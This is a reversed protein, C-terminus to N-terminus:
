QTVRLRMFRRSQAQLTTIDHVIVSKVGPSNDDGDVTAPGSFANGGTSTAITQWPGAPDDAAQAEITLDTNAPDRNLTLALTQNGAAGIILPAEMASSALPDLGLAYETLNPISDGDPDGLDPATSSGLHQLKWLGFPAPTTFSKISGTSTGDANTVVARFYYTTRPALGTLITNTTVMGSPAIEDGPQVSGLAPTTGYEWTVNTTEGGTIVRAFLKMETTSLALSGLTGAHPGLHSIRFVSGGNFAGGSGATGYLDGEPGFCLAGTSFDGPAAGESGTFHFLMVPAGAPQMRFVGGFGNPGGTSLTGYLTGDPAVLLPGLPDSGEAASFSHLTTLAGNPTIQYITGLGNAGGATTTGYLNGDPALSPGCAPAAGNTGNFEALLVHANAPTLRFITGMDSAGGDHTTGYLSGNGALALGGLPAAGPTAGATGTFSAIRGRTGSPTMGFVSGFGGLGGSSATAYFNGNSDVIFGSAPRSGTTTGFASLSSFVGATTLKFATGGDSAGGLRTVGYLAGDIGTTLVGAPEAGRATGAAGTFTVMPAVTGSTTVKVITGYGSTGGDKNGLYLNGDAGTALGNAPNWGSNNTFGTLNSFVGATTVKFATGHNGTGGSTTTGYLAGDTGTILMGQCETGKATGEVGTFESVTGIVGASSIRYVTGSGAAGGVATSGYFFGDSALTVGCAPSSGNLGDFEYLRTHGGAASLRFFTGLDNVGGAETVGYFNSDTGLVLGGVPNAGRTNGGTGTFQILNTFSGATTIRFITGFDSAGGSRTTGFLVGSPATALQGVPQAGRVGGGTGTFQALTTLAGAPTMKFVTGLDGTGGGSTTGYFNGDSHLLLEGDPSSGKAAGASGTFGVLSTFTGATTVKFITGFDDSGGSSTTGYLSGDAAKTLGTLPASGPAAGSTGTFHTIVTLAGAPTLRFVTGLGYRGGDSTTGYYNGDTHLVLGGIPSLPPTEFSAVTEFVPSAPLPAAAVLLMAPVLRLLATMRPPFPNTKGILLDDVFVAGCRVRAAHPPYNDM